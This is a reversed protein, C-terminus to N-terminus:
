DMKLEVPIGKYTLLVSKKNIAEVKMERYTDGVYLVKDDIMCCDGKPTATITWLEMSMSIVHAEQQIQEARQSENSSSGSPNSFNTERKFPNKNLEDVAVQEVNKFQSFRGAVSNMQIDMESKMNRLQALASELQAQDQSTQANATAPTTKKVMLWIGLAGVAFLIALVVTGQKVKEGQGAVTMYNQEGTAGADGDSMDASAPIKNEDKLYSLM